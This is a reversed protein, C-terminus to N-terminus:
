LEEGEKRGSFSFLGLKRLRSICGYAITFTFTFNVKSRAMYAWLLTCKLEVREKVKASSPLLQDVGHWQQEVEPSSVTGM